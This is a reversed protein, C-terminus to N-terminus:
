KGEWKSWDCSLGAHTNERVWVCPMGEIKVIRYKLSGAGETQKTEASAGCAGITLSLLIVAILRKM